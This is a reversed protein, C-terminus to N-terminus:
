KKPIARSAIVAYMIIIEDGRRRIVQPALNAKGGKKMKKLKALLEELTKIIEDLDKEKPPQTEELLKKIDIPKLKPELPGYKIVMTHFSSEM